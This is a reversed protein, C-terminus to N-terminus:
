LIESADRILAVLAIATLALLAIRGTWVVPASRWLAAVDPAWRQVIWVGIMLAIVALGLPGSAAVVLLPLLGLFAIRSRAFPADDSRLREVLLSMVVGYAAPLAIFMAIALPLPELLTFDIGGPSIVLTGGVVGGFVGTLVARWRAPLWSRVGLYFLGGLVGLFATVTVLFLTATSVVGITFDDDTQLGRLSPDSTLRLVLMALRGGVGGVVAGAVLGGVMGAALRRCSAALDEQWTATITASAM